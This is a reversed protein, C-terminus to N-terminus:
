TLKNEWHINRQFRSLLTTPISPNWGSCSAQCFSESDGELVMGESYRLKLLVWIPRHSTNITSKWFSKKERWLSFSCIVHRGCVLGQKRPLQKKGCRKTKTKTKKKWSTVYLSNLHCLYTAHTLPRVMRLWNMQERQRERILIAMCGLVGAPLYTPPCTLM